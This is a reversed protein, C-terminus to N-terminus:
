PATALPGRTVLGVGADWAFTWSLAGEDVTTHASTSESESKLDVSRPSWQSRRESGPSKPTLGEIENMLSESPQSSAGPDGVVWHPSAAAANHCVLFPAAVQVGSGACPVPAAWHLSTTLKM